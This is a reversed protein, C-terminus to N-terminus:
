DPPARPTPTLTLTLTTNDPVKLRVACFESRESRQRRNLLSRHTLAQLASQAAGRTAKGAPLAAKPKRGGTMVCFAPLM